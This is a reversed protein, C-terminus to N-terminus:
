SSASDKIPPGKLEVTNGEPDNLYLSPGYGTAGFRDGFGTTEVGHSKLYAQIAEGDFPEVQLCFHDMNHAEAGPLAGKEKSLKGGPTLIDIQSNGARLQTLGIEPGTQRDITCGLVDCYFRILRESDHARIVVHDLGILQIVSDAM